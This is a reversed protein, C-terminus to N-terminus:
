LKNSQNTREVDRSVVVGSVLHGEGREERRETTTNTKNESTLVSWDTNVPGIQEM